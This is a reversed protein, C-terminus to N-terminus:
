AGALQQSPPNAVVEELLQLDVPKTLHMDFGAGLARSKDEDQGWGTLAVLYISRGWDVARIARAVEYGSLGPMGIDIFAIEPSFSRAADLAAFGDYTVVVQHGSLKLAAGLSEAGDQNDDAVLVRRRASSTDSARPVEPEEPASGSPLPLRVIFESGKGLGASRAEISGGHREVIAKALALGVGLGGESRDVPDRIQTFMEFLREASEREFGIGSDQVSIRAHGDAIDGTLTIRGGPASYKSANTLLNALVQEIRV